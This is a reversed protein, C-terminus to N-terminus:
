TPAVSPWCIRQLLTWDRPSIALRYLCGGFFSSNTHSIVNREHERHSATWSFNLFPKSFSSVVSIGHAKSVFSIITSIIVSTLPAAASVWFLKPNRASQLFVTFITVPQMSADFTLSFQICRVSSDSPLFIILLWLQEGLSNLVDKKLFFKIFLTWYIKFWM